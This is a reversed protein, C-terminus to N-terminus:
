NTRKTKARKSEFCRILYYKGFQQLKYRIEIPNGLHFRIRTALERFATGYVSTLLKFVHSDPLCWHIAAFRVPTCNATRSITDLRKKLDKINNVSKSVAYLVKPSPFNVVVVGKQQTELNNKDNNSIDSGGVCVFFLYLWVKSLLKQPQKEINTGENIVVAIIHRGCRDRFPLLQYAGSKFFALEDPNFDEQLRIPRKLVCDGYIEDLLNLYKSYRIVSKSVDFLESRLFRLKMDKTLLYSSSSSSSSDADQEQQQQQLALVKIYATKQEIPLLNLELDFQDLSVELLIPTEHIAMCSVGHIEEEIQNRDNSSLNLLASSFMNLSSGNKNPPPQQHHQQQQKKDSNDTSHHHSNGTRHKEKQCTTRRKM